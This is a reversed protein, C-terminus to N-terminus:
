IVRELPVFKGSVFRSVFYEQGKGTIRPTKRVRITGDPTTIVTEKVQMLGLKMSKQTPMNYGAGKRSTLFCHHRMWEFLRNGGIDIGNGALIKALDSILITDESTEVAQAFLVKPADQEIQTELQAKAAREEKLQTALKIIFDPDTLAQETAEPTLYGGRKRISPLVESTVWRKFERAEPKRSQFIVQYLGSENVTAVAYTRNSAESWVDTSGIDGQDLASKVEGVNSIGLTRCVDKLVFMPNGDVTVTRVESGRFDFM